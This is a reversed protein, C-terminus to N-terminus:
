RTGAEGTARVKRRQLEAEVAITLRTDNYDRRGNDGEDLRQAAHLTIKKKEAATGGLQEGHDVALGAIQEITLKRRMFSRGLALAGFLLAIGTLVHDIM